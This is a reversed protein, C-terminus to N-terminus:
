RFRLRFCHRRFLFRRFQAKGGVGATNSHLNTPTQITTGFGLSVYPGTVPQAHAAIPLVLCSAAALALRLKM